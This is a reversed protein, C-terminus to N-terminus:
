ATGPRRSRTAALALLAAGLLAATGPTPVAAGQDFSALLHETPVVTWKSGGGRAWALEVVGAGLRDYAGLEFAYLGAGLLLDNGFGIRERPNLFDNSIELMDNGAGHLKFFFGDDHLVSFNYLGAESIRIYGAFRSTWNNQKGVALPAGDFLPALDVSGWTAGYLLNYMTDGFSIQDVRGSWSDKVMGASPAHHATNWDALGWLGSGWGYGGIASGSGYTKTAENWLVTSQHWNDDVKLFTADVGNGAGFQGAHQPALAIPAALASGAAFALALAAGARRWGTNIGVRNM